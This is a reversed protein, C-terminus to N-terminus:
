KGHGTSWQSDRSHLGENLGRVGLLHLLSSWYDPAAGRLKMWDVRMLILTFFQYTSLVCTSCLTTSHAVWHNYCVLKCGLSSQPHPPAHDEGCFSGDRPSDCHVSAGLSQGAGHPHSDHTPRQRHGLLLPSVNYCFLIVNALGGVGVQLLLITKLAVEGTARLASKQSSMILAKSYGPALLLNQRHSCWCDKYVVLVTFPERKEQASLYQWVGCFHSQRCFM